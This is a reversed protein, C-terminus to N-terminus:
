KKKLKKCTEEAMDKHHNLSPLTNTAFARLETNEGKKTEKDYIDIASKHEKVMYEAYSKDFDEGEKASLMDYDKQHADDLKVGMPISKNTAIQRLVEDNKKHDNIMHSALDKVEPSFGKNSALESLKLEMLNGMLASEAFEKDQKSIEPNQANLTTIGICAILLVLKKM